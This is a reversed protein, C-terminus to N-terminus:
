SYLSYHSEAYIMYNSFIISTGRWGSCQLQSASLQTVELVRMLVNLRTQLTLNSYIVRKVEKTM